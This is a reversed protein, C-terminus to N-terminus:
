AATAPAESVGALITAAVTDPAGTVQRWTARAWRWGARLLRADRDHDSEWQARHRDWGDVEFIFREARWMFDPKIMPRGDGLDLWKQVEPLPINLRRIIALAREELENWTPTTGPRHHHLARNLVRAPRIRLRNHGLQEELADLDFLDRHVVEDLYREVRRPPLVEALDIATRAVTTCPIGDVLEIDEPRLTSSRHFRIGARAHGSRRPVVVHINAGAYSLLGRHEGASQHSLGAGDDGALVAAMRHGHPTLLEKPTLAYVGHHIRHLWGIEAYHRVLRESMGLEVLQALTVIGHQGLALAVVHAWLARPDFFPL